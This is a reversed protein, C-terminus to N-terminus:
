NTFSPSDRFCEPRLLLIVDDYEHLSRNHAGDCKKRRNASAMNVAFDNYTKYVYM